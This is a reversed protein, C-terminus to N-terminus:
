TEHKVRDRGDSRGSKEIRCAGVVSEAERRGAERVWLCGRADRGGGARTGPVSRCPGHEHLSGWGAPSRRPSWGNPRSDVLGGPRGAESVQHRSVDGGRGRDGGAGDSDLVVASDRSARAHRGGSWGAEPNGFGPISPKPPGAAGRDDVEENSGGVHSAKRVKLILWSPTNPM